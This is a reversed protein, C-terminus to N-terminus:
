SAGKANESVIEKVLPRPHDRHDRARANFESGTERGPAVSATPHQVTWIRRQFLRHDIEDYLRRGNDWVVIEIESDVRRLTVGCKGAQAHKIVNMLLERVAHFLVLRTEDNIPKASRDDALTFSIGHDERFRDGLWQIAAALGIEYLVPPSLEATLSRTHAISRDILVYVEELQQHVGNNQLERRLGDVKMKSLALM